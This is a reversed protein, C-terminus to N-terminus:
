GAIENSQEAVVPDACSDISRRNRFRNLEEEMQKCYEESRERLRREKSAEAQGEDIQTEMERRLKESKRIDQRLNDIKQMAM